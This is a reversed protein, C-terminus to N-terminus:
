FNEWVPTLGEPLKPARGLNVFSETPSHFDSGRSALFDYKKAERTFVSTMAPAQSGSVVEIARGGFDKFQAFLEGLKRRSVRYRGPHAVVAIGGAQTIWLIAEELTAWVHPVFGPKGQALYDDFVKHVSKAVGIEVLYRAFHSRSIQTPNKAHKMAGDFTNLIGLKALADSMKQARAIRGASLNKLAAILAGNEHDFNLGVIHVQLDNWGVSIEVGNVFRTKFDEESNQLAARAESLGDLTDHDTLAWIDVKNEIAKQAIEAPALVGDSAHSHCHLDVNPM